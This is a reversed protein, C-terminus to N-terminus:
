KKKSLNEIGDILQKGTIEDGIAWRKLTLYEYNKNPIVFSVGYVSTFQIKAGARAFEHITTDNYFGYPYAVSVLKSYMGAETVLKALAADRRLAAIYQEETEDPKKTAGDRGSPGSIAKQHMDYTHSQIVITGNRIWKDTDKMTFKPLDTERAAKEPYVNAGITFVTANMGLKELIPAAIELNSRYGDDMTIIIPKEPLGAKKNMFADLQHPTIATYGANKLATMQEEFSEESVVTSNPKAKEKTFHHFMLVPVAVPESVEKFPYVPPEYDDLPTDLNLIDEPKATIEDNHKRTCGCNLVLVSVIIFIFTKKM